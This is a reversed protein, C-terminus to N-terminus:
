AQRRKMLRIDSGNFKILEYGGLIRSLSRETYNDKLEELSLNSSIITSRHM